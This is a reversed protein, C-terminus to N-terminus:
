LLVSIHVTKKVTHINTNICFHHHGRLLCRSVTGFTRTNKGVM